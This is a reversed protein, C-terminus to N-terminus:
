PETVQGLWAMKPHCFDSLIAFYTGFAMCFTLAIRGPARGSSGFFIIHQGDGKESGSYFFYQLQFLCPTISEAAEEFDCDWRTFSLNCSVNRLTGIAESLNRWNHLQNYIYYCASDESLFAMKHFLTVNFSM